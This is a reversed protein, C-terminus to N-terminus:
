VRRFNIVKRVRDVAGETSVAFIHADFLIRRLAAIQTSISTPSQRSIAIHLAAEDQIVANMELANSAGVSFAVSLGLLFDGSPATVATTVGGYYSLRTFIIM